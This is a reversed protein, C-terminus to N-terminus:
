YSSFSFFFFLFMRTVLGRSDGYTECARMCLRPHYLPCGFHFNPYQVIRAPSNLPDLAHRKQLSGDRSSKMIRVEFACDPVTGGYGAHGYAEVSIMATRTTYLYWSPMGVPRQPFWHCVHACRPLGKQFKSGGTIVDPVSGRGYSRRYRPNKQPSFTKEKTTMLRRPARRWQRCTIRFIGTITSYPHCSGAGHEVSHACYATPGHRHPM